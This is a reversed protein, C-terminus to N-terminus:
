CWSSSPLPAVQDRLSALQSMITDRAKKFDSGFQDTHAGLADWLAQAQLDQVLQTASM